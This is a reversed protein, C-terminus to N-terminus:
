LTNCKTISRAPGGLGGGQSPLWQCLKCNNDLVNPLLLMAKPDAKLNKKFLANILLHRPNFLHHWHTWGRERLLRTTEEGREIEMDPILGEDQWPRLNNAIFSEVEQERRLDETTVSAYFFEQRSKNITQEKIWQIAYLREQFIDGVRPKFDSKEWHLLNNITDGNPGRYDGRLTKIRIRHTAGDLEYVMDGDHITGKSAERMQDKTAGSVVKIDFKKDKHDPILKAIVNYKPSIIWSPSLPIKWGTQPCLVELCYLYAKARNGIADREFGLEDIEAEVNEIATKQSKEIEVRESAPAGISKFAGWSLMCAVPNLDSAYADCGIRAAEYPISGGGSFTDGVRPRRGYRLVGLQEVLEPVSQAKVNLYSFHRNVVPWVPEYLWEQDVEEPRKCFGSKEDYSDFTNLVQHYLNLKEEDTVDNRWRNGNFFYEPDSICIRESIYTVSFANAALARRALGEDDFGLLKEYIALDAEKDKTPPLLSGLLIARVLILPKRGKWYSGLGTLTQAAVSKRETQAEFSIKQAPFVTEILAPVNRLAGPELMGETVESSDEVKVTM